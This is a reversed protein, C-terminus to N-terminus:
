SFSRWMRTLRNLLLVSVRGGEGSCRVVAADGAVTRLYISGPTGSGDAAFSCLLSRNFQVPSADPGIRRGGDPDPVGRAPIGITAMARPSVLVDPGQVLVDVGRDIDDNRVGDDDGDTFVAYSWGGDAERLFKIARGRRMAMADEQTMAMLGCIRVVAGRLAARWLINSLSALSITTFLGVIAVTVLMEVLTYGRQHSM